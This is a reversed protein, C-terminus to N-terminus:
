IFSGVVFNIQISNLMKILICFIMRGIHISHQYNITMVAMYKGFKIIIAFEIFNNSDVHKCM